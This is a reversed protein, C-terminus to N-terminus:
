SMRYKAIHALIGKSAQIGKELIDLHFSENPAHLNDEPTFLGIMLSDLGVVNKLDAIIPISGGERLFLPKQGFAETISCEAAKFAEAILVPQNTPTNPRGPPIIIYPEGGPIPTIHATVGRPCNERITDILYQQITAAKQNPVLRCTIKVFAKSPIITKSGEGQYGGGIGNFELTPSFRIAEFPSSGEAIHLAPLNLFRKYAEESQPLRAVEEREWDPVPLVDDYFHPINVKGDSTHLAACIDCLAQIPNLLAGGHLGSHVDTCPGTLEVNVGTLGRLATTIVIQEPDPSSSDSLLVLDGRLRDKYRELFPSFSPSGIEEEGEILFTIRIPTEPNEELLQAVAAVHVMLPGKNDATGRGYLRRNRVEPEFPPSAWQTVPDEPQVDYHGYIIIHPWSPDGSREALVIPHLPTEIIEISFGIGKLLNAIYNRAGDMGDKYKPDTSVSPYRVYAKIAELPDFM